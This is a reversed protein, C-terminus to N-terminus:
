GNREPQADANADAREAELYELTRQSTQKQLETSLPSTLQYRLVVAEDHSACLLKKDDTREDWLSYIPENEDWFLEILDRMENETM